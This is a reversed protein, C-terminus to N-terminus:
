DHYILPHLPIPSQTLDRTTINIYKQRDDQKNNGTFTFLTSLMGQLCNLCLTSFHLKFVDDFQKVMLREGWVVWLLLLPVTCLLKFTVDGRTTPNSSSSSCVVKVLWVLWILVTLSLNQIDENLSDGFVNRLLIFIMHLLFIGCKINLHSYSLYSTIKTKPSIDNLDARRCWTHWLYSVVIPYNRPFAKM